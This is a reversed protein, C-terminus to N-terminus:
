EEEGWAEQLASCVQQRLGGCTAVESFSVRLERQMGSPGPRQEGPVSTSTPAFGMGGCRGRPVDAAGKRGQRVETSSMCGAVGPCAKEEQWPGRAACQEGPEASGLNEEEQWRLDSRGTQFGGEAVYM